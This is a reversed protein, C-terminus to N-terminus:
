FEVDFRAVKEANKLSLQTVKMMKNLGTFTSKLSVVPTQKVEDYLFQQLLYWVLFKVNIISMVEQEEVLNGELNFRMIKKIDTASGLVKAHVAPSIARLAALGNDFLGIAAGLPKLEAAKELLKVKTIGKNLLAVALAMGAIGGGVIVIDYDVNM